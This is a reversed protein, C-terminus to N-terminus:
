IKAKRNIGISQLWLLTFDSLYPLAVIEELSIFKQQKHKHPEKNEIEWTYEIVEFVYSKVVVTVWNRNYIFDKQLIQNYQQIEIGCEELMEQKLWEEVTQTPLVKGAPITWFWYKVHEQVLIKWDKDKILAAIWYHSKLDEPTYNPTEFM